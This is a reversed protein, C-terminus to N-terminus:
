PRLSPGGGDLGSVSLPLAASWGTEEAQWRLPVQVTGDHRYGVIDTGLDNCGTAHCEGEGGPDLAVRNGPTAPAPWVSAYRGPLPGSGVAMGSDNIDWVWGFATFTYTYSPPKAAASGVSKGEGGGGGCGVIFALTTVAVVLMLTWMLRRM